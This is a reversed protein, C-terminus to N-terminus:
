YKKIYNVIDWLVKCDIENYKIIKKFLNNKKLNINNKKDYEKYALFMADLGNSLDNTWNTKILKHIYMQRAVNKLGYNYCGNVFIMNDKFIKLLDIWNSYNFRCNLNYKNKIKNFITKEAHSWHFVCPQDDNYEKCIKNYDNIFKKVIRYEELKSTNITTYNKYNWKDNLDQWGFGIMFLYTDNNDIFNNITEFDIFMLLKNKNKWNNINPIKKNIQFINNNSRHFELMKDILISRKGNIGLMKSNCDKDKWSYINNDFANQRHEISCNWISTIEFNKSALEQKQNHYKGDLKNNMNPYLYKNSPPSLKWKKHNKNLNRIWNIADFSLQKYKNDFNDFNIIGGRDFSSNSCTIVKKKDVYKEQVWSNGLIYGESPTYGQIVGLCHTYIYIQSKFPKINQTNRLTDNNTNFHLKSNKIDIIRYHYKQKGLNPANIIENEKSIIPTTFIQNLIDSRVILDSCGFIKEKVDYLVGQYIIYTGKKM